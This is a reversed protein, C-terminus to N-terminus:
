QLGALKQLQAPDLGLNKATGLMENWTTEDVPVGQALRKARMERELDGAVRVHDGGPQPPSAKVWEIFAKMEHEFISGDALKAPDFIISLMGNIIRRKGDPPSHTTMGGALAGGL